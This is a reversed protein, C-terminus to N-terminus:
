LEIDTNKQKIAAPLISPLILSEKAEMKFKYLFLDSDVTGM